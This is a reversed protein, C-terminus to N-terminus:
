SCMDCYLYFIRFCIFRTNKKETKKLVHILCIFDIWMFSTFSRTLQIVIVKQHHFKLSSYCRVVSQPYRSPCNIHHSANYVHMYIIFLLRLLLHCQMKDVRLFVTLRPTVYGAFYKIEPLSVPAFNLAFM